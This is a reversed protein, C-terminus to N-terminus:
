EFNDLLREFDAEAISLISYIQTRGFQKIIGGFRSFFVAHSQNFKLFVRCHKESSSGESNNIKEYTCVRM